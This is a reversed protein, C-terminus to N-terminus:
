KSIDGRMYIDHYNSPKNSSFVNVLDLNNIDFENRHPYSSKILCFSEYWFFYGMGPTLTTKDSRHHESKTSETSVDGKIFTVKLSGAYGRMM